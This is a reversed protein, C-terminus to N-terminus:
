DRKEGHKGKGARGTSLRVGVFFLDDVPQQDFYGGLLTNDRLVLRFDVFLDGGDGFFDTNSANIGATGTSFRFLTIRVMMMRAIAASSPSATRLSDCTDAWGLL